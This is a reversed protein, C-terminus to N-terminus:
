SLRPEVEVCRDLTSSDFRLRRGLNRQLRNPRCATLAVATVWQARMHSTKM